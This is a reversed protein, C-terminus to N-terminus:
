LNSIENKFITVVVPSNHNLKLVIYRILGLRKLASLDFIIKLSMFNIDYTLVSMVSFSDRKVVLKKGTICSKAAKLLFRLM